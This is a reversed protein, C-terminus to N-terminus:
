NVTNNLEKDFQMAIKNIKENTQLYETINKLNYNQLINEEESM